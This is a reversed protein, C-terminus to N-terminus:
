DLHEAAGLVPSRRAPRTAWRVCGVLTLDKLDPCNRAIAGIARAATPASSPEIKELQTAGRHDAAKCHGAAQGSGHGRADAYWSGKGAGGGEQHHPHNPPGALRRGIQIHGRRASSVGAISLDWIGVGLVSPGQGVTGSLRDGAGGSPPCGRAVAIMGADRVHACGVHRISRPRQLVEGLALLAGDGFEGVPSLGVRWERSDEVRFRTGGPRRGHRRPM